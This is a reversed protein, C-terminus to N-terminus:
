PRLGRYLEEHMGVTGDWKFVKAESETFDKRYVKEVGGAIEGPNAPEVLVYRGFIVEPLSAVNSAVVPRGMTCAEVCTFGFGEGLSPVVVCDSSLLYGPLESEGVPESVIIDSGVELKLENILRDVRQRGERPKNSLILFPLSNPIREKILPIARLLHEVGKVYGPRGYFMYVFSDEPIGREERIRAAKKKSDGPDFLTYDIGPYILSLKGSDIGHAELAGVTSRSIGVFRDFPLALVLRELGSFLRAMFPSVGTQQWNSGVVELITIVAPTGTIKSSLWAPFAGNYTTTHVVDAGKAYKIAKPLAAITFWYRDGAKPVAVRHVKVGGIVEEAETGPLRCTVVDVSHGAGVLGEALRAFLRELGGIHPHYYEIVFLIKM